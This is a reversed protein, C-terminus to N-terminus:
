VPLRVWARVGGGPSEELRLEGGHSRVVDMAITLGLGTGGSELNRSSDLRYFPKFVEERQEPPIGPGDDDITIEIVDNNRHSQISVHEAYRMANGVLNTIGRRFAIPRVPMSLDGDQSLSIDAGERRAGTAVEAIIAGVNRTVVAETSEGRAFALYEEVMTEMQAVDSKLDEIQRGDGLMALELKMRTLPTRLDHSVGALMETRQAIARQIRERMQNFATAAVRIETAGEPKIDPSDRGKGFNEAAAALRRIPRVQNRMFISAIAFMVMSTGVMWMVFIYTTSSFLRERSVEVDLIGGRLQVKIKVNHEDSWTDMHFPRAVREKLARSLRRDLIGNGIEPAINPLIAKERFKIRLGAYSAAELMKARNEPGPFKSMGVM